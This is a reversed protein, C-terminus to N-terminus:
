KRGSKRKSSRKGAYVLVFSAALLLVTWLFLLATDGTEVKGSTGKESDDSNGPNKPPTGKSSTDVLTLQSLSDLEAEFIGPEQSENEYKVVDGDKTEQLLVLSAPNISTDTESRFTLTGDYDADMGDEYQLAADYTWLIQKGDLAEEVSNYAEVEDAEEMYLRASQHMLGTISSKAGEFAETKNVLNNEMIKPYAANRHKSQSWQNLGMEAASVSLKEAFAATKMEQSTMQQTDLTQNTCPVQTGKEYYSRTIETNESTGAIAAAAEGTVTGVNYVNFISASGLNSGTIGGALKGSSVSGMHYCNQIIGANEGAIGGALEKGDVISGSSSDRITGDNYAAIGGARGSAHIYSNWDIDKISGNIIFAATPLYVGSSCKTIQGHNVAAIGGNNVAAGKSIMHLTKLNMVNGNEGIVGFIGQNEQTGNQTLNYIYYNDGEFTGNFPHEETGIAVSWAAGSGDINGTMRYSASGYLDYQQEVLSALLTLDDINSILYTDNEDKELPSMLEEWLAYFTKDGTSGKEITNGQTQYSNDTYWGSFTSGQKEPDALTITDSEVNYVSPNAAHNNGGNLVYNVSYAVPSWKAYLTLAPLDPEKSDIGLTDKTIVSVSDSYEGDEYKAYWGEFTYGERVPDELRLPIDALTYASPNADNNGGDLGEYTISYPKYNWGAYLEINGTLESVDIVEVKQTLEADWYWGNFDAGKMVAPALTVDASSGTLLGPNEPSNTGGNAEYTVVYYDEDPDLQRGINVKIAESMQPMYNNLGTSQGTYIAYIQYTGEETLAATKLTLPIVNYEDIQSINGVSVAGLNDVFLNDSEDVAIFTIYNGVNEPVPIAGAVPLKLTAALTLEKESQIYYEQGLQTNAKKMAEPDFSLDGNIITNNMAYLTATRSATSKVSAGKQWTAVVRYFSETTNMDITVTLDKDTEGELAEWVAEGGPNEKYEYWQYTLTGGEESGEPMKAESEFDVEWRENEDPKRAPLNQPQKEFVPYADSGDKTIADVTRSLCSAKQSGDEKTGVGQLAFSYTTSPELNSAVYYGQEAPIGDAIKQMNGLNDKEYINYTEAARYGAPADWKLGAEHETTTFVRLNQPLLPPAADSDMGTVIYSVVYPGKEKEDTGSKITDSQWVALKMNYNYASTSGSPLGSAVGEFALGAVASQITSQDYGGVTQYVGEEESNFGLIFAGEAMVKDYVTSEFDLAWGEKEETGKEVTYEISAEGEGEQVSVQKPSVHVRGDVAYTAMVDENEQYTSPDGITKKPLDDETVPALNADEYKEALENYKEVTMWSFAPSLQVSVSVPWEQAKVEDGVKYPYPDQPLTPDNKLMENYADIHEQKVIFSPIWVNYNYNVMPVAFVVANDEGAAVHITVEDEQKYEELSSNLYKAVASLEFGGGMEGNSGLFGGGLMLSAALYYGSGVNYSEDKGFGSGSKITYSTGGAGLTEQNYPLEKWYPASELVTYLEPASWGYTKGTYKVEMADKDIDLACLSIFTGSDSVDKAHIYNNNTMENKWATGDQWIWSIDYSVINYDGSRHGGSLVVLQDQGLSSSSFCASTATSIFASHGGELKMSVEVKFEGNANSFNEKETKKDTYDGVYKFLNGELFVGTRQSATFYKGATLAAPETMDLNCRLGEHADVEKPENWVSEYCGTQENWCILQILNKKDSLKGVGKDESLSENKYGGLLLEKVGNGNLDTDVASVFRMRSNKNDSELGTNAFAQVMGGDAYTYIAVTSKQQQKDYGDDSKLPLSINIVLDDRGAIQTTALSVVPVHVSTYAFSYGPDLKSLYIRSKESVNGSDDVEVMIIYPENNVTSPVYVAGEEKGDGDYDGATIATFSKSTDADISEVYSPDKSNKDALDYTLTNGQKYYGDEGLKYATIDEKSRNKPAKDMNRQVYLTMDLIEDVGDGDYDIACSNNTQFEIKEKNDSYPFAQGSGVNKMNDVNLTEASLKQVNDKIEFKGKFHQERNMSGIYLESLRQTEYGDMPNSIDDPDFEEPSDNNLGFEAYEEDTLVNKEDEYSVKSAAAQVKVLTIYGPIGGITLLLALLGAMARKTTKRKM